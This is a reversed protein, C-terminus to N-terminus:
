SDVLTGYWIAATLMGTDAVLDAM